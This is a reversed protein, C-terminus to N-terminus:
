IATVQGSAAYESMRIVILALSEKYYFNTRPSMVVRVKVKM